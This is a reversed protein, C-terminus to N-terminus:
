NRPVRKALQEEIVEVLYNHDFPKTIYADAGAAIGQEISAPEVKASIIIFVPMEERGFRQKLEELMIIGNMNPMNVDSLIVDPRINIAEKLSTDGDDALHVRYGMLALIETPVERIAHEDDILLITKM